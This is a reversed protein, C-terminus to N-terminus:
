WSFARFAGIGFLGLLETGALHGSSSRAINLDQAQTGLPVLAQQIPIFLHTTLVRCMVPLGILDKCSDHVPYM